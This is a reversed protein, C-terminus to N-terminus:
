VILEASSQSGGEGGFFTEGLPSVLNALYILLVGILLITLPNGIPNQAPNDKHQKLKFFSVVMFGLGSVYAMLVIMKNGAGLQYIINDAIDNITMAYSFSALFCIISLYYRIM